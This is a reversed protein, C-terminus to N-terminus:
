GRALRLPAKERMTGAATRATRATTAAGARAATRATQATTAAGAGATTRATRATTAAGARATTRASTAKAATAATANGCAACACDTSKVMVPVSRLVWAPATPRWSYSPSVKVTVTVAELWRVPPMNSVTTVMTVPASSMVVVPVVAVMPVRVPMRKRRVGVLRETLWVQVTVSSLTLSVPRSDTSIRRHPPALAATSAEAAVGEVPQLTAPPAVPLNRLKPISALSTRVMLTARPAPASLVGTRSPPGDRPWRKTTVRVPSAVEAEPVAPRYQYMSTDPPVAECASKVPRTSTPPLPLPRMPWANLPTVALVM